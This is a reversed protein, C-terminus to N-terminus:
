ATPFLKELAARLAASSWDLAGAVNWVIRGNRDVIYTTPLMTVGYAASVRSDADALVPFDYSTRKLFPAIISWGEQDVSITVLAFDNRNRFDRYLRELSPMEDLCTGCWTAWFNIIVVKGRYQSLSVLNGNADPLNFDRALQGVHKNSNPVLSILAAAPSSDGTPADNQNAAAPPNPLAMPATLKDHAHDIGVYQAVAFGIVFAFLM